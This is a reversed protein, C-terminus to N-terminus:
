EKTEELLEAIDSAYDRPTEVSRNRRVTVGIMALTGLGLFLWPALWLWRTAGETSPNYRVFEGYRKVMGQVIEDDSRGAELEEYLRRRLDESIPANSDAITQNQCKPCRLEEVLQHYRVELEPRSFEYTEIVAGVPLTLWWLFLSACFRM